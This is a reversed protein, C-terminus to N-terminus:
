VPVHRFLQPKAAPLIRADDPNGEDTERCRGGAALFLNVLFIMPSVSKRSKKSRQGERMESYRGGAASMREGRGRGFSLHKRIKCHQLIDGCTDNRRKGVHCAVNPGWKQTYPDLM